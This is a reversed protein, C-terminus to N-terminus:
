IITNTTDNGGQKWSGELYERSKLADFSFEFNEVFDIRGLSEMIDSVWPKRSHCHIRHLHNESEIRRFKYICRSYDLRNLCERRM